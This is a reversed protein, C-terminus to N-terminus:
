FDYFYTRIIIIRLLFLTSDSIHWQESRHLSVLTDQSVATGWGMRPYICQSGGLVGAAWLPDMGPAGKGASIGSGM